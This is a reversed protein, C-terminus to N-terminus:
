VINGINLILFIIGSLTTFTYVLNYVQANTRTANGIMELAVMVHNEAMKPQLKRRDYEINLEEVVPNTVRVGIAM